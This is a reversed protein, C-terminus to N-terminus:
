RETDEPPRIADGVLEAASVEPALFTHTPRLMDDPVTVDFAIRRFGDALTGPHTAAMYGHPYAYHPNVDLYFRLKM